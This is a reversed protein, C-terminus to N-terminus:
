DNNIRQEDIQHRYKWSENASIRASERAQDSKQFNNHGELGFKEQAEFVAKSLAARTVKIRKAIDEYSNALTVSTDGAAMLFAYYRLVKNGRPEMIYTLVPIVMKSAAEKVDVQLHDRLLIVLEACQKRNLALAEAWEEGISDCQAAIDPRYSTELNDLPNEGMSAFRRIDIM